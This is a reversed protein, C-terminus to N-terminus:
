RVRNNLERLDELYNSLRDVFDSALQRLVSSSGSAAEQMYLAHLAELAPLMGEAYVRDAPNGSTAMVSNLLDQHAAEISINQSVANRTSARLIDLRETNEQVMQQAFLKLRPYAVRHEAVRSIQIFAQHMRSAATLFNLDGSTYPGEDVILIRGGPVAGQLSSPSAPASGSCGIVVVSLCMAVAPTVFRNM